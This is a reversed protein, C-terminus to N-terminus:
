LFTSDSNFTDPAMEHQMSLIKMHYIATENKKVLITSTFLWNMCYSTLDLCPIDKEIM